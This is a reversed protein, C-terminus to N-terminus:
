VHKTGMLLFQHRRTAKSTMSEQLRQVRILKVNLDEIAQEVIRRTTAEDNADYELNPIPLALTKIDAM